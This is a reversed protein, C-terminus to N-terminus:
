ILKTGKRLNDVAWMPQLNKYNFCKKQIQLSNFNCKKLFYDIPIIHDIHWRGYNAWSMGKKFRKQIYQKLFKVDCGLLELTKTQKINKGYKFYDYMRCRVRHILKQEPTTRQCRNRIKRAEVINNKRWLKREKLIKEQNGYYYLIARRKIKETNNKHYEFLYNKIKDKHKNRYSKHYEFVSDKNKERYIKNKETIEEKNKQFYEKRYKKEHEKNNESWKKVRAKIKESNAKYYVKDHAKIKELNALRYVKKKARLKEKNIERYEKNYKKKDFM